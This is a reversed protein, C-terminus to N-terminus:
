SIKPIVLYEMIPKSSAMRKLCKLKILGVSKLEFWLILKIVGYNQNSVYQPAYGQGGGQGQESPHPYGSGFAPPAYGGQNINNMPMSM